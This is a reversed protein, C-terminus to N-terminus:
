EGVVGLPQFLLLFHRLQFAVASGAFEVQSLGPLIIEANPPTLRAPGEWNRIPLLQPSESM